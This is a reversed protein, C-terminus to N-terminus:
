PMKVRKFNLNDYHLFLTKLLIRLRLNVARARITTREICLIIRTLSLQVGRLPVHMLLLTTSKTAKICHIFLM